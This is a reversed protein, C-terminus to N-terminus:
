SLVAEIKRHLTKKPALRCKGYAYYNETMHTRIIREIQLLRDITVTNNTQFITEIAYTMTPLTVKTWQHQKTAIPCQRKVNHKIWNTLEIIGHQKRTLTLYSIVTKGLYQCKKCKM